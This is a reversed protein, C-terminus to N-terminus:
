AERIPDPATSGARTGNEKEHIITRLKEKDFSKMLDWPFIVVRGHRASSITMVPADARFWDKFAEEQLIGWVKGCYKVVLFPQKGNMGARVLLEEWWGWVECKDSLVLAELSWKKRDKADVLFRKLFLSSIVRAAEPVSPDPNPIIDGEFKELSRGQLPMRRFAVPTDALSSGLLKAVVLEFRKGKRHGNVSM